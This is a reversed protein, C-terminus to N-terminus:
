GNAPPRGALSPVVATLGVVEEEANTFGIRASVSVRRGERMSGARGPAHCQVSQSTPGERAEILAISTANVGPMDWM